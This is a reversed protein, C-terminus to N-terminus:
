FTDKRFFIRHNTKTESKNMLLRRINMPTNLSKACIHLRAFHRQYHRIWENVWKNMRDEPPLHETLNQLRNMRVKGRWAFSWMRSDIKARNKWNAINLKSKEDVKKMQKREARNVKQRRAAAMKCNMAIIIERTRQRLKPTCQTVFHLSLEPPPLSPLASSSFSQTSQTLLSFRTTPSQSLSNQWRPKKVQQLMRLLIFFISKVNKFM